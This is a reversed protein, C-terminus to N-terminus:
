KGCHDIYKTDKVSGSTKYYGTVRSEGSRTLIVEHGQVIKKQSVGFYRGRTGNERSFNQTLKDDRGQTDAHEAWKM